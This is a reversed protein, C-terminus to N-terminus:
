KTLPSKTQVKVRELSKESVDATTAHTHGSKDQM